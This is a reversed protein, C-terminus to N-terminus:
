ASAAADLVDDEEVEASADDETAEGEESADQEGDEQKFLTEEHIHGQDDSFAIMEETPGDSDDEGEMGLVPGLPVAAGLAKETLQLASIGTKHRLRQNPKPLSASAIVIGMVVSLLRLPAM